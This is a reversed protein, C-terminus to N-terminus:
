EQGSKILGLLQEYGNENNLFTHKTLHAATPRRKRDKTLCVQLFSAANSSLNSPIAPPTDAMKFLAAVANLDHYPPFGTVLEILSCGLSWIDAPFSYEESVIVEPATYWPTGVTSRRM